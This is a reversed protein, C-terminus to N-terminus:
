NSTLKFLAIGTAVSVNFSEKRGKMPIEIIDDAHDLLDQNVGDVEEGIILLLKDPPTYTSLDISNQRQELAVVRFGQEKFLQIPPDAHTTFPVQMEADLATKRIQKTLKDTIHPLRRQPTDTDVKFSLKPSPSLNVDPYPTYGSFCIHVVGFGECTRMISGVNHASRINHILIVIQRM